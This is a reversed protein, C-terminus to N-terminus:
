EKMPSINEINERDKKKPSKAPSKKPSGYKIPSIVENKMNM